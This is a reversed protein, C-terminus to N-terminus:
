DNGYFAASLCGLLLLKQLCHRADDLDWQHTLSQSYETKQLELVFINDSCLWVFVEYPTVRAQSTPVPGQIVEIELQFSVLAKKQSQFWSVFHTEWGFLIEKVAWRCDNCEPQRHLSIGPGHQRSKQTWFNCSYHIECVIYTHIVGMMNGLGIGQFYQIYPTTM